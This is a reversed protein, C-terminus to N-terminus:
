EWPLPVGFHESLGRAAQQEPEGYPIGDRRYRAMREAEVAGPLVVRDTGPLPAHHARLARTYRDVEARFVEPAVFQALDVALVMGGQQASSWRQQIADAEAGMFGTLAGGLFTTVAILGISRFFAGPVRELLDDNEARRYHGFISAGMDLVLDPEEGGPVACCLPPDGSYGASPKPDADRTRPEDRYGQMSIGVCGAELCIRAYHGASGYHGIHRVLALGLGTQRAREVARHAGQVMPWYGATGDGDIVVAASTEQVVRIRPAPNLHGQQFGLAYGAAGRTGHSRVGRLDANVLLRSIVEAHERSVGAREFCVTVFGLLRDEQVLIYEDPPANKFRKPDM